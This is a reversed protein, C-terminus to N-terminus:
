YACDTLILPFFLAFCSVLDHIINQMPIVLSSSRFFTHAVLLKSFYLLLCYIKLNIM